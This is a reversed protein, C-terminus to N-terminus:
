TAALAALLRILGAQNREGTKDFIVMLRTRATSHAIGCDQAALALDAHRHLALALASEAATLRFLERLANSWDGESKRGITSAFLLCRVDTQGHQALTAPLPHASLILTVRGHADHLALQGQHQLSSGNQWDGRSSAQLLKQLAGNQQGAQLRDQECRLQPCASLLKEGAHSMRVIRQQGDLLFAAQPIRELAADLSALQQRMSGMRRQIAYTNVWHPTLLQLLEIDSESYHRTEDGHCVSLTVSTNSDYHGISVMQQVIGLERYYDRHVEMRQMQQRPLLDESNIVRATALLPTARKIWPDENLDLQQIRQSMSAADTGHVIMVEGIGHAVDHGLVGVIHSSTATALRQNFEMMHEPELASRYLPELLSSLIAANGM